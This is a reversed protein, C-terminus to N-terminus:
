RAIEDLTVRQVVRDGRRVYSEEPDLSPPTESSDIRLKVKQAPAFVSLINALGDGTQEYTSCVAVRDRLQTVIVRAKIRDLNDLVQNTEPDTIPLLSESLVDFKMGDRVGDLEGRNIVLQRENLVQAVRGEIKTVQM